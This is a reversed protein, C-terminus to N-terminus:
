EFPVQSELIQGKWAEGKENRRSGTVLMTTEAAAGKRGEFPAPHGLGTEGV